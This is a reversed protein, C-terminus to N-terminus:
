KKMNEWKEFKVEGYVQEIMEWFNEKVEEKPLVDFIRRKITIAVESDFMVGIWLKLKKRMKAEGQLRSRKEM